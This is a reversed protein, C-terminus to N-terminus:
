NNTPNIYNHILLIASYGGMLYISGVFFLKMYGLFEGSFIYVLILGSILFNEVLKYNACFLRSIINM